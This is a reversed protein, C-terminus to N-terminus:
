GSVADDVLREFRPGIAEPAYATRYRELARRGLDSRLAADGALRQLAAGISDADRGDVHLAADGAIEAPVGRADVVQAVGAALAEVAVGGFSETTSPFVHVDAAVLLRLVEERPRPGLWRVWPPLDPPPPDNTVVDLVLAGHLGRAAEVVEALAKLHGFAGVFLARPPGEEEPTAVDPLDVYIIPPLVQVRAPDLRPSRDLIGARGIESWCQVVAARNAMKVHTRASQEPFWSGPRADIVGQTSWITPLGRAVPFVINGFVARVSEGVVVREVQAVDRLLRRPTSGRWRVSRGPVASAARAARGVARRWAVRGEIPVVQGGGWRIMSRYLLDRDWLARGATPVLEDPTAAVALTIM